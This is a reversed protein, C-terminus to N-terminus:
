VFTEEWGTRARQQVEQHIRRALEPRIHAWRRAVSRWHTLRRASISVGARDNMCLGKFRGYLTTGAVAFFQNLATLAIESDGDQLQRACECILEHVRSASYFSNWEEPLASLDLPSDLVKRISLGNGAAARVLWTAINNIGAEDAQAQNGPHGM